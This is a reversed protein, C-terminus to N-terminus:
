TRESSSKVLHDFGRFLGEPVLAFNMAVTYPAKWVGSLFMLKQAQNNGLNFSSISTLLLRM